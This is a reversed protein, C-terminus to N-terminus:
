IRVSGLAESWSAANRARSWNVGTAAWCIGKTSPQAAKRVSVLGPESIGGIRGRAAFRAAGRDRPIQDRLLDALPSGAASSARLPRGTAPPAGVGAAYLRAARGPGSSLHPGLPPLAARFPGAVVRGRRDPRPRQGSRRRGPCLFRLLRPPPPGSPTASGSGGM